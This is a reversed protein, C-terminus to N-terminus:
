GLRIYLVGDIIQCCQADPFLTLSSIEPQASQILAADDEALNVRAGLAMKLYWRAASEYSAAYTYRAGQYGELPEFGPHTMSITSSTLIGVLVVPTEGAVYGETQEIRDLVRTMASLTSSWEVDRKFALQNSLFTNQAIVVCLLLQAGRAALRCFSNRTNLASSALLLAAIDFFVYAYITLGSVLGQAIFQVFNMAPILLLVLLLLMGKSAAPLAKARPLLMIGCFALLILNLYPSVAPTHCFIVDSAGPVFLFLIPTLVTQALYEGIRDFSFHDLAGVGNYDYSVSSNLADMVIHLVAAYLILAALICGCAALGTLFTDKPKAGDLTRRILVLIIIVAAAPLYSQYLGLSFFFLPISLLTCAGGRLFVYAGAAAFLLALAYVDTWPLYTANSVALTEHTVLLASLLAIDRKKDLRFLEAMLVCSLFLFVTAFLGIVPPVTIEGRLLWYVPQLYRGLTSQYVAQGQQTLLMADGSFCLSYYRCGHALLSFLLTFFGCTQYLSARKFFM